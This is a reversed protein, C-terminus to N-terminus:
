FTGIIGFIVNKQYVLKSLILKILILKIKTFGKGYEGKKHGNTTETENKIEDSLEKNKEQIHGIVKGDM